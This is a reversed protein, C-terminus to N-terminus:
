PSKLFEPQTAASYSAAIKPGPWQLPPKSKAKDRRIQSMEALARAGPRRTKTEFRTDAPTQALQLTVWPPLALAINPIRRYRTM